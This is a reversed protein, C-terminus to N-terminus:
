AMKLWKQGHKKQVKPPATNNKKNINWVKPPFKWVKKEVRGKADSLLVAQKDNNDNDDYRLSPGMGM